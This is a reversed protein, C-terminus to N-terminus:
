RGCGRRSDRESHRLRPAQYLDIHFAAHTDLRTMRAIEAQKERDARWYYPTMEFLRAVDEGLVRLPFSLSERRPPELGPLTDPTEDHPRPTDYVKERLEYLHMAAPTVTLYHGGPRLARTVETVYGPAFVRLILDLRHDEVPLEASSAVAIHLAPYRRAAMRAADRSIDIGALSSAMSPNRERLAEAIHGTYYGEGCGADLCTFDARGDSLDHCCDILRDLLPQYHGQELFARRSQLMMRNDGPAQSNRRHGLLLNVYGERAQDFGHRNACRWSKGVLELREACVPCRWYM